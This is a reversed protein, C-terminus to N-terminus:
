VKEQLGGSLFDLTLDCFRGAKEEHVVHGCNRVLSFEVRKLAMHFVQAMDLEHWKDDVGWIILVENEVERLSGLVNDEDFDRLCAVVAKRAALPALPQAYQERMNADVMTKDFFCNTLAEDITRGTLLSASLWSTLPNVLSRISFPMTNTIGGPSVLVLRGVREPASQVLALAYIAGLSFAGVHASILGIEDMFAVLTEATKEVAYGGAEMPADSYGHGPLDVAIVRYFEALREVCRHWTFLTQGVTHLLLLPEGNGAEYYHIRGDPLQAYHGIHESNIFKKHKTNTM